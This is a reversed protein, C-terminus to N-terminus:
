TGRSTARCVGPAVSDSGPFHIQESGQEPMVPVQADTLAATHRTTGEISSVPVRARPASSGGPMINPDFNVINSGGSPIVPGGRVTSKRHQQAFALGEMSYIHIRLIYESAARSAACLRIEHAVTQEAWIWGGGTTGTTGTKRRITDGLGGLGSVGRTRPMIERIGGEQAVALLPM